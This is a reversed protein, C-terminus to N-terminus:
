SKLWSGLTQKLILDRLAIDILVSRLEFAVALECEKWPASKLRITEKWQEFSSRPHLIQDHASFEVPTNPDGGWKVTQIVEPRFWLVYSGQVKSIPLALLGSACNKQAEFEAFINALSSTHFLGEEPRTQLWSVLHRVQDEPPVNGFETYQQEICLVIGQAGVADLLEQNNKKLSTFINEEKQLNRILHALITKIKSEYIYDEYREKAYLQSSIFQAILECATRMEYNLYIPSKHHCVIMGWLQHEKLLSLCLSAHVGMNKLYEIHIPSVSRLAAFSLDLPRQTFPNETPVIDVPQYDIDAIMRLCNQEYLARAQKPIDSAPFRLDLFTDFNEVKDEAIVTGNWQEDFRYVM